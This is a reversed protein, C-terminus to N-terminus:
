ILRTVKRFIHINVGIHFPALFFNFGKAFLLASFDFIYTIYFGKCCFNLQLPKKKGIHFVQHLINFSNFFVCFSELNAGFSNFFM